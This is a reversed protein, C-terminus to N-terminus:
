GAGGMREAMAVLMESFRGDEMRELLVIWPWSHPLKVDSKM